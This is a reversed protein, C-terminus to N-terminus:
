QVNNIELTFTTCDEKYGLPKLIALWGKRGECSLHTCGLREALCKLYDNVQFYDVPQSYSPDKGSWFFYLVKAKPTQYVSYVGAYGSEVQYFGYVEENDLALKLSHLDWYEDLTTKILARELGKKMSRWIRDSYSIIM